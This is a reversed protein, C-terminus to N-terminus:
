TPQPDIVQLDLAQQYIAQPYTTQPYITRPDMVQVIPTIQDTNQNVPTNRDM